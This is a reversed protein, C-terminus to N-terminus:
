VIPMKITIKLGGLASAEAVINGEHAEVINKCIALGLGTGGTERNRSSEVRYLREFLHPIDNDPVGPSSDEFFILAQSRDSDLKLELKGGANTYRLTNILLNSFLQQLRAPDANIQVSENDAAFSVTINKSDFEDRHSELTKNLTEAVDIVQKQYNLAGIDSMSLEYLDNVLRNLNMVESHLSNLRDPTMERVGDQLAEIEGRLVSLPTRLEHSIDAIWQQRAKENNELTMALSNFDRSLNGLEDSSNVNVRSQYKGAALKRTAETLINIPKVLQRSVPFAVVASILVMCFGLILLFRHQRQSFQLDHRESLKKRPSIALYGVTQGDVVIDTLKMESELSRCRTIAQKNKDLLCDRGGRRKGFPPKRHQRSSSPESPGKEARQHPRFQQHAEERAETLAPIPISSRHIERWQRPNEKLFDWSSNGKYADALNTVLNNHMEEEVRNVYELFGREFSWKVLFVMSAVVVITTLLLTLFLKYKITFRM